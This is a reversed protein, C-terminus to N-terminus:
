SGLEQDQSFADIHVQKQITIQRRASAKTSTKQRKRELPDKLRNRPRGVTAKRKVGTVIPTASNTQEVVRDVHQNGCFLNTKIEELGKLM